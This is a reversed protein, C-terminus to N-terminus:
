KVFGMVALGQTSALIKAVIWHLSCYTLAVTWCLRGPRGAGAVLIATQIFTLSHEHMAVGKLHGVCFVKLPRALISVRHIYLVYM